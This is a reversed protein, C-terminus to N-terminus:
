FHCTGKYDRSCKTNKKKWAFDKYGNGNDEELLNNSATFFACKGIMLKAFADYFNHNGKSNSHPILFTPRLQVLFQAREMM